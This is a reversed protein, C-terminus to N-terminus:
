YIVPTIGTDTQYGALPYAPIEEEWRNPNVKEVEGTALGYLLAKLGLYNQKILYGNSKQGLNGDRTNGKTEFFIAPNSHNNPNINDYNLGMMMASVVGGKIDIEYRKDGSGTQYRDIHMYGYDKLADYVYVSMQRTLDNYLGDKIGPLTPGNPALSIGLSMSTSENTGYVTKFGQHHLDVAFDPKVDAWYKYFVLSEKAQFGNEAWDRNLDITMNRGRNDVRPQGNEDHLLTTRTNMISGDPNYMPIAYITTEELIKEIDKSGSSGFTKLLELVADTTLKEDGHIQAQVWIKIPGTGVKAAYFSRNQESKGYEDLTFVEVKGKSTHEIKKLEKIMDDYTIMSDMSTNGNTSPGGPVTDAANAQSTLLASVFFMIVVFSMWLKKM